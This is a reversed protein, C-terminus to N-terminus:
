FLATSLKSVSLFQGTQSSPLAWLLLSSCFAVWPGCMARKTTLSGSGFRRACTIHLALRFSLTLSYDSRHCTLSKDVQTKSLQGKTLKSCGLDGIKVVNGATLFINKPKLDRHLIKNAHLVEVGRCIQVFYHWVTKEPISKNTHLAEKIKSHLDGGRAYETVIYINDREVFAEKYRIISKHHLSALIRIENVAEERERQKLPKISVEKLAYVKKDSRRQVKYVSGYSGKGLTSIKKFESLGMGSCAGLDVEVPFSM